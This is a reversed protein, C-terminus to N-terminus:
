LKLKTFYEKKSELKNDCLVNIWEIIKSLINNLQGTIEYKNFDDFNYKYKKFKFFIKIIWKNMISNEDLIIM